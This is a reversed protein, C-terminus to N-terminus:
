RSKICRLFFMEACGGRIGGGHHLCVCVCVCVCVCLTVFHVVACLSKFNWNRKTIIGAAAGARGGIRDARWDLWM